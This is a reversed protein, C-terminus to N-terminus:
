LHTANNLVKKSRSCAVYYLFLETQQAQSLPVHPKFQKHELVKSVASNLDDDLTVEDAELGKFTHATGILLNSKAKEHRKAEDHCEIITQKSHRQILNLTTILQIDDPYLSRLYAYISKHEKVLDMDSYFTDVDEQLYRYAPASIFGRPKLNCLALPVEFIQKASRALSYPIGLTNLEIMKAILSANTRTIYASTTITTDRLPIGQFSFDPNLYAQCFSQIREAISESVRFSQSMPLLTGQDAMVDFCNITHNFAYINQYPDGVMVKRTAPLLKFIELTVENVDGAEDLMVIDFPAYEILGHALKLHYLKLYFEHTCEILGKEMLETYKHLLTNTLGQIDKASCYDDVSTYKSLCFQKFAEILEDKDAGSIRDTISRQNFHGVKLKDAVVTPKFALSHTTSCHIAKPFKRSAETAISKNYCIYLGNSPNLAKAIETLMTTKGTGAKADIMTLGPTALVHNLIDTQQSTLM